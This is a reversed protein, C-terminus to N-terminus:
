VSLMPYLQFSSSFVNRLIFLIFNIFTFEALALKDVSNHLSPHVPTAAWSSSVHGTLCVETYSIYVVTFNISRASFILSLLVLSVFFLFLLFLLVHVSLHGLICFLPLPWYDIFRLPLTWHYFLALYRWCYPLHHYYHPCCPRSWQNQSFEGAVGCCAGLFRILTNTNLTRKTSNYWNWM